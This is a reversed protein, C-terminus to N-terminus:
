LIKQLKGCLISSATEDTTVILVTDEGALSGLMHDDFLEDVALAASQAMGNYCQIVVNNMAYKVSKASRHFLERMQSQNSTVSPRPAAIYRYIGKEDHGKEIQLEKMDRSVTSQTIPFGAQELATQLEEQTLIVQERILNLIAKQRETKM